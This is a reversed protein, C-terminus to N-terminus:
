HSRQDTGQATNGLDVKLAVKGDLLQQLASQLQAQARSAEPSNEIATVKIPFTANGLLIHALRDKIVRM